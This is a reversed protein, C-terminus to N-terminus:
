FNFIVGLQQGIHLYNFGVLIWKRFGCLVAICIAGEFDFSEGFLAFYEEGIAMFALSELLCESHIHLLIIRHLLLGSVEVTLLQLKILKGIHLFTILIEGVACVNQSRGPIIWHRM